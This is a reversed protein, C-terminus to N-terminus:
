SKKERITILENKVTFSFTTECDYENNDNNIITPGICIKGQGIIGIGYELRAKVMEVGSYLENKPTTLTIKESLYTHLNENNFEGKVFYELWRRARENM